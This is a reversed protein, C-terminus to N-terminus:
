SAIHHVVNHCHRCLSALNNPNYKDGGDSLPVIHHVVYAPRGCRVCLPYLRKYHRSFKDWNTDYGRGRASPRNKEREWKDRQHVACYGSVVLMPCGYHSCPRLPRKPMPANYWWIIPNGLRNAPQSPVFSAFLRCGPAPIV